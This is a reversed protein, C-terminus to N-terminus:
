LYGFCETGIYFFGVFLISISIASNCIVSKKIRLMVMLLEQQQKNIHDIDDKTVKTQGEKPLHPDSAQSFVQIGYALEVFFQIVSRFLAKGTFISLGLSLVAFVIDKTILAHM